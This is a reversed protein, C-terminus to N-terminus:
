KKIQYLILLVEMFKSQMDELADIYLNIKAKLEENEQMLGTKELLTRNKEEIMEKNLALQKGFNKKMQECRGDCLGRERESPPVVIAPTEKPKLESSKISEKMSSYKSLYKEHSFMLRNLMIRMEKTKQLLDSSDRLIFSHEFNKIEAFIDAGQGVLNDDLDEDLGELQQKRRKADLYRSLTDVMNSVEKTILLNDDNLHKMKLILDKNKLNKESIEKQLDINKNTVEL